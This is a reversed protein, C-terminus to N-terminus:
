VVAAAVTSKQLLAIAEDTSRVDGSVQLFNRLTATHASDLAAACGDSIMVCRFGTMIADRASTECCTNTLTGTILVTDLGRARLVDPLKCYGPLFASFRIKEMAVDDERMELKPWVAYGQSDPKLGERLQARLTPSLMTGYFNSWSEDYAMQIWVVLGGGKRTADALRNIAPVIARATALGYRSDEACFFNQMDIVVLATKRAEIRDYPHVKGRLWILRDETAKDLLPHSM